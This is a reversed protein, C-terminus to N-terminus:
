GGSESELVRLRVLSGVTRALIQITLLGPGGQRQFVATRVVGNERYTVTLTFDRGDEPPSRKLEHSTLSLGAFSTGGPNRCLMSM